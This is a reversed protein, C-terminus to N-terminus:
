RDDRATFYDDTGPVTALANFMAVRSAAISSQLLLVLMEKGPAMPCFSVANAYFPLSGELEAELRAELSADEVSQPLAVLVDHRPGKGEGEVQVLSGLGPIWATDGVAASAIGLSAFRDAPAFGRPRLADYLHDYYEGGIYFIQRGWVLAQAVTRVQEALEVGPGALYCHPVLDEDALDLWDTLEDALRKEQASKGAFFAYPLLVSGPKRLCAKELWGLVDMACGCGTGGAASFFVHVELQEADELMPKLLREVAARSQLLLARGYRRWGGAGQLAALAKEVEYVPVQLKEAVQWRMGSVCSKLEPNQEMENLSRAEKRINLFPIDDAWHQWAPTCAVDDAADLYLCAVEGGALPMGGAALARRWALLVQGGVGGLGILLIRKKMDSNITALVKDALIAYAHAADIM